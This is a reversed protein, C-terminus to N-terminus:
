QDKVIPQLSFEPAVQNNIAVPEGNRLKFVGASAIQEGESLGKTVVIYDGRTEGLRVFQQRAVLDQSPEDRDADEQVTAANAGESNEADKEEEKPEIVFVSDGYTAYKVATIPIILVNHLHPLVVEIKTFMGSLLQNEPNAILAQIEVSRTESDIEPNIANIKGEFTKGPVADSQLRVVLDKALQSLNQQPLFFNVFMLDTSQLSVVPQGATISQGLNVLRIGLRGNFPARISKKAIAARINDADALASQYTSKASDYESKSAVKRQYLQEVRAFNNKGLLVASQASRLQAKETSTDQEILLDGASVETGADFHIKTIRGSLDATIELGKAAELSGIATLTSEWEYPQVKVSSVMSPPKVMNKGSDILAGIQLAKVGVIVAVLIFLGLITLIVNKTTM